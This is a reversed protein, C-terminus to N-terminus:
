EKGFPVSIGWKTSILHALQQYVENVEKTSLKTTTTIGTVAKQIPRWMYEKVLEKTPVIPVGEKLVTKMDLGQAAMQEAVEQCYAHIGNNQRNTRTPHHIEYTIGAGKNELIYDIFAQAEEKNRVIWRHGSM